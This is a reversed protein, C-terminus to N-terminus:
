TALGCQLPPEGQHARPQSTQRFGQDCGVGGLGLRGQSQM